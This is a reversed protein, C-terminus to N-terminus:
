NCPAEGGHFVSHIMTKTVDVLIVPRDHAAQGATAQRFAIEIVVLENIRRAQRRNREAIM